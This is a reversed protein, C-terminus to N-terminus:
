FLTLQQPADPDPNRSDLEEKLEALADESLPQGDADHPTLHVEVCAPCQCELPHSPNPPADAAPPLAPAEDPAVVRAPDPLYGDPLDDAHATAELYFRRLDSEQFIPQRSDLLVYALSDLNHPDHRAVHKYHEKLCARWEDGFVRKHDTM